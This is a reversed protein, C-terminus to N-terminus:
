RRPGLRRGLSLRSQIDLDVAGCTSVQALRIPACTSPVDRSVTSPARGLRRAIVRCSDGALLGRSIEEREPLSLRLASQPTSRPKVGGTKVLLRQVSKASCGLATAAGEHTEGARVRRQLELREACTLRHAPGSGHGM